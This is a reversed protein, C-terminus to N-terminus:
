INETTYDTLKYFRNNQTAEKLTVSFLSTLVTKSDFFFKRKEYEPRAKSNM